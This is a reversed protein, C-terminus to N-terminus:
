RTQKPYLLAGQPGPAPRSWDDRKERNEGQLASELTAVDLAGLGQLTWLAQIRAAARHSERALKTIADVAAADKKWGLLQQAKDRVWGNASEM